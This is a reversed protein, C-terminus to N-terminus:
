KEVIMRKINKLYNLREESFQPKHGHKIKRYSLVSVAVATGVFASLLIIQQLSLISLLSFAPPEKRIIVPATTFTAFDEGMIVLRVM